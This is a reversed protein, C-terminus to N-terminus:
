LVTLAARRAVPGARRNLLKILGSRNASNL